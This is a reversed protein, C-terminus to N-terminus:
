VTAEQDAGSRLVALGIGFVATVAVSVWWFLESGTYSDALREWLLAVLLGLPIGVFMWVLDMREPLREIVKWEGWAIAFFGAGMLRPWFTETDWGFVTDNVFDPLLFWGIAYALFAFTQFRMFMALRDM